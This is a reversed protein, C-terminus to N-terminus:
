LNNILINIVVWGSVSIVFGIIAASVLKKGSDKDGPIAGLVMRLAGYIIVAVAITATLGLLYKTVSMIALPIDSFGVEGNRLNTNDIGLYNDAASAIRTSFIVGSYILSKLLNKM